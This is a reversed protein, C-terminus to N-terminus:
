KAIPRWAASGAATPGTSGASLRIAASALRGHARYGEKAGLDEFRVDIEDAVAEDDVREPVGAGDVAVGAQHHDLRAAHWVFFQLDPRENDGVEVAPDNFSRETGRRVERRM